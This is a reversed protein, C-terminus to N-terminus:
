MADDPHKRLEQLGCLIGQAIFGRYALSHNWSTNQPIRRLPSVMRTRLQSGITIARTSTDVPQAVWRSHPTQRVCEVWKAVSSWRPKETVLATAPAGRIVGSSISLALPWPQHPRLM